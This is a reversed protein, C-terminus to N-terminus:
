KEAVYGWEELDEDDTTSRLTESDVVASPVTKKKDNGCSVLTTKNHSFEDAAVVDDYREGLYARLKILDELASQHSVRLADKEAKLKSGEKELDVLAEELTASLQKEAFLHNEAQRTRQLLANDIDHVKPAIYFM